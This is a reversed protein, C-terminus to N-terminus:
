EASAGALIDFLRNAADLGPALEEQKDTLIQERMELYALLDLSGLARAQEKLEAMWEELTQMAWGFGDRAVWRIVPEGPVSRRAAESLFYTRTGLELDKRWDFLDNSMQHWCGFLDVLEVWRAYLAPCGYDYCVAAIPIKVAETKRATVQVFHERDIEGASADRLTVEAAHYWIERFLERFAHDRAFDDHYISQFEASFVHLTPLLELEITGHGDMLNDILRIAYYGNITSYVLDTQRDADPPDHLAKEAWWPFLLMPYSLPHKYGDQQRAIGGMSEMWAHVREAITPGAARLTEDLRDFAADIVAELAPEYLKLTCTGEMM